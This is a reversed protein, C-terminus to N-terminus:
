PMCEIAGGIFNEKYFTGMLTLLGIGSPISGSLKNSRVILDVLLHDFFSDSCWVPLFHM